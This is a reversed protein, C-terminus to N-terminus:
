RVADLPKLRMASIAPVLGGLCGMLLAFIMGTALIKGDVVLELVVSKGGGMGSSLISTAGLGHSLSGVACGVVGGLLALAVSEMFFSTLIQWRAYGLIRMVGIDRIRQSIAAFMTIMVGFVSGVAVFLMIAIIAYLFQQNTTSLKAYYEPETQAAVATKKYNKALDEALAKATAADATRLVCTTYTAKGFLDKMLDFKAWVESDFTSGASKMIGVVIWKRPGLDFVDGVELTKKCQDPGLERALGEGIVAQIAQEGSKSGPLPQVGSSPAFWAGGDYLTLGHVKGSIVPDVIGRVQLFRRGRAGKVVMGTGPCEPEGHPLLQQGYRDVPVVQGCRACTRVLIPQNVLTYVELSALRRGEEDRLVEDRLEIELVDGHTFNSFLEDTAGDSLVMVNSPNGSAQTLRNMGNIFALMVTLLAVVLTFALGTLATTKWRVLLNRLNYSFPVKRLVGLMQLVIVVLLTICLPIGVVIVALAALGVVVLILLAATILLYKLLLLYWPM